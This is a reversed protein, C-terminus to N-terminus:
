KWNSYHQEKQPFLFATMNAKEMELLWLKKDIGGAYGTLNGKTGVVRHCPIMLSIANHGVAGGVAQASMHGQGRQKAIENAIEKYTMTEGFPIKLMIEWVAKRFPTTEMSLLPMFDPEKGSFYIDLWEDAQEFVPLNKLQYEGILTTGFYKQGDFWLGILAKGDSALTIGGIPSNYHHIYKM